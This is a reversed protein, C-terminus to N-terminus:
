RRWLSMLGSVNLSGILQQSRAFIFLNLPSAANSSERHKRNNHKRWQLGSYGLGHSLSGDPGSQFSEM